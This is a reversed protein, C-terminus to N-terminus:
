RMLKRLGNLLPDVVSPNDRWQIRMAKEYWAVLQNSAEDSMQGTGPNLQTAKVLAERAEEDRDQHALINALMVWPLFSGPNNGLFNRAATEAEGLNGVITYTLNLRYWHGDAPPNQLIREVVEDARGDYIMSNHVYSGHTGENAKKAFTRSLNIDGFARHVESCFFYFFEGKGGLKIGKEVLALTESKLEDSVPLFSDRMLEMQIFALDVYAHSATPDLEIARRM